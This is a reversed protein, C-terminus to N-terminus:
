TENEIVEDKKTEGGPFDLMRFFWYYFRLKHLKHSKWDKRFFGISLIILIDWIAFFMFFPIMFKAVEVVIPIYPTDM